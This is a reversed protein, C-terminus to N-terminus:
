HKRQIKLTVHPLLSVCIGCPKQKKSSFFFGCWILFMGYPVLHLRTNAHDKLAKWLPQMKKTAIIQMLFFYKKFQSSSYSLIPIDHKACHRQKKKKKIFKWVVGRVAVDPSTSRSISAMYITQVLTRNFINRSGRKISYAYVIRM